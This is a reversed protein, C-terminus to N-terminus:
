PVQGAFEKQFGAFDHLTIRNDADFDFAECGSAYVTSSPGTMCGEWETFDSLDVRQSCNHDGIGFEYAGMDVRGCLVRTHGDFDSAGPEFAFAPTGRDICPSDTLLRLNDDETGPTNDWGDDDVFQPDSGTNGTGSWNQKVCSYTVDATGGYEHIQASRNIGGDDSNGWFISNTIVAHAGSSIYLGGGEYGASNGYITCHTM